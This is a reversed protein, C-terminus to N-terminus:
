NHNNDYKKSALHFFSSSNSNCLYECAFDDFTSTFDFLTCFYHNFNYFILLFLFPSLQDSIVTRFTQEGLSVCALWKDKFKMEAKLAWKKENKRMVSYFYFLFFFYYRFHLIPLSIAYPSSASSPSAPSTKTRSYNAPPLIPTAAATAATFISATAFGTFELIRQSKNLKM